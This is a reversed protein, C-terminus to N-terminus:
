GGGEARLHGREVHFVTPRMAVGRLAAPPETGTLFVQAGTALVRELVLRQHELDLESALDDLAIVPWDGGVRAHLQAQALM